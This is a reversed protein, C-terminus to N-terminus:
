NGTPASYACYTAIDPILAPKIIGEEYYFDETVPLLEVNENDCIIRVNDNSWGDCCNVNIIGNERKYITTIEYGDATIKKVIEDAGSYAM